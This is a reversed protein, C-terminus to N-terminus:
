RTEEQLRRQEEPTLDDVSAYQSLQLGRVYAAIRWRDAPPVHSAYPPMSGFGRTIVDYLYGPPAQRLRDIHFSAPARYGRQVIIGRGGGSRDHCPACFIDYRERGRELDKRTVAFPFTEAPRAGEKGEFFHADLRLGGRPITGAVPLRSGQGDAFFASEQLPRVKPQREM